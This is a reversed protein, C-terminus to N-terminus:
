KEKGETSSGPSPPKKSSLSFIGQKLTFSLQCFVADRKMFTNNEVSDSLVYLIEEELSGSVQKDSEKPAQPSEIALPTKPEVEPAESVQQDEPPTAPSTPETDSSYWGGWMPFWRHLIGEGSQTPSTPEETEMPSMPPPPLSTGTCSAEQEKAVKEMAIERLARLESFELEQEIKLQHAKHETLVTAPNRLHDSYVNVYTVIDKARQQAATWNRGAYRRHIKDLHSQIAYQWWDYPNEKVTCTPRWKRFHRAKELRDYEKNWKVAQRYQSDILSLPFKELKLDCTIRPTSRSRLPAESLNRKVCATASVPTLIYEHDRKGIASLMHAQQFLVFLPVMTLRLFCKDVLKFMLAYMGKSSIRMLLYLFLLARVFIWIM